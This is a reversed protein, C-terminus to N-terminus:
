IIVCHFPPNGPTVGHEDTALSRKRPDIQTQIFNLPKEFAPVVVISQGLM